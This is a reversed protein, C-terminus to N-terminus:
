ALLTFAFLDPAEYLVKKGGKIKKKTFSIMVKILVCVCLSLVHACNAFMCAGM